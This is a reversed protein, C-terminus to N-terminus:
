WIRKQFKLNANKKQKSGLLEPLRLISHIESFLEWITRKSNPHIYYKQKNPLKERSKLTYNSAYPSLSEGFM